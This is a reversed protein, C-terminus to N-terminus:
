VDQKSACLQSSSTAAKLSNPGYIKRGVGNTRSKLFCALVVECQLLYPKAARYQNNKLNVPGDALYLYSLVTRLPGAHPPDAAAVRRDIAAENGLMRRPVAFDDRRAREKRVRSLMRHPLLKKVISM